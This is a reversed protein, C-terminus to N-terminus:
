TLACNPPARLTDSTSGLSRSDTPNTLFLRLSLFVDKPMGALRSAVGAAPNIFGGKGLPEWQSREVISQSSAFNQKIQRVWVQHEIKAPGSPEGLSSSYAILVEKSRHETPPRHRVLM